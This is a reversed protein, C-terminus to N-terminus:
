INWTSVSVSQHNFASDTATPLLSETALCLCLLLCSLGSDRAVSSTQQCKKQVVKSVILEEGAAKAFTPKLCDVIPYLPPSQTDWM